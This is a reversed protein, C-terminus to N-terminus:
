SVGTSMGYAMMQDRGGRKAAYLAEDAAAYLHQADDAHTPAHALGVSVSMNIVSGVSLSFGHARVALVIDEARRRAVELTCTPMLIAMEDGGLRCVVDGRRSAAVLLGSLQVLM